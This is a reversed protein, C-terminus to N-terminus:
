GDAIIAKLWSPTPNKRNLKRECYDIATDIRNQLIAVKTNLYRNKERIMENEEILKKNYEYAYDLERRLEKKTM